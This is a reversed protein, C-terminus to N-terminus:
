TTRQRVGLEGELTRLVKDRRGAVEKDRLTREPHRFTLRWAVSRFGDAIGAGRYESSCCSRSSCSAARTASSAKSARRRSITRCSSRWTSSRRRRPRSPGSASRRRPRSARRRSRAEVRGAARRAGVIRARAHARRRVRRAGVRACRARRPAGHRAGRRRDRDGLACRREDGGTAFSSRGSRRAIADRSCSPSGSRMGRTSTPRTRRGDLAASASTGDRAGRRADGRAAAREAVPAFSPASRSCGCTAIVSRSTTSPARASRRSSIAASIARTRPWRTRSSCTRATAAACSRCRCRRSCGRRWARRACAGRSCRSRRTPSPAAAPVPAARDSFSDYGRLRAIEEFLDVKARSTPAGRRARDGVRARERVRERHLRGARAAERDGARRVPEGLLQAVRASDLPISSRAAEARPLSRGARGRRTGGAVAILLQAARELARPIGDIDIGREFRYSADTSLELARRTRRVRRRISTRSRSSSTADHRRESREHQGGM